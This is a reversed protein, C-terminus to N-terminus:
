SIEPAAGVNQYWNSFEKSTYLGLVKRMIHEKVETEIDNLMGVFYVWQNPTLTTFYKNPDAKPTITIEGGDVVMQKDPYNDVVTTTATAAAEVLLCKVVNAQDVAKVQLPSNANSVTTVKAMLLRMLQPM